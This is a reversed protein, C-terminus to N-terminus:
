ASEETLTVRGLDVGADWRLRYFYTGSPLANGQTDQGRWTLREGQAELGLVQQGAANFLEFSFGAAPAVIVVEVPAELATLERGQPDLFRATRQVAVQSLGESVAILQASLLDVQAFLEELPEGLPGRSSDTLRAQLEQAAQVVRELTEAAEALGELPLSPGAFTALEGTAAEFAELGAVAAELDLRELGARVAEAATGLDRYPGSLPSFGAEDRLLEPLEADFLELVSAVGRMQAAAGAFAEELATLQAFPDDTGDGALLALALEDWATAQALLAARSFSGVTADPAVRLTLRRENNREDAERVRDRPDIEVELVHEGEVAQWSFRVVQRQFPSLRRLRQKDLTAGDLKLVIEFATSVTASSDNRVTVEVTVPQGARPHPPTAELKEAVLDPEGFQAGGAWPGGGVLLSLAVLACAKRM